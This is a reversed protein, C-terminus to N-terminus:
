ELIWSQTFSGLVSGLRKSERLEPLDNGLLVADVAIADVHAVTIQLQLADTDVVVFCRTVSQWTM